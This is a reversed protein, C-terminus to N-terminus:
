MIIQIFNLLTYSKFKICYTFYKHLFPMEKIPYHNWIEDWISDYIISKVISEKKIKPLSSNFIQRIYSRVYGIFLRQARTKYDGPIELENCEKLVFKYLKKNQIFKDERIQGTISSSNIMYNYFYDPLVCVCDCHSLVCLNFHLDESQIERESVFHLNNKKIVDRDYLVVKASMQITREERVNPASAIMDCALSGIEEKGHFIEKNKKHPLIGCPNGKIDIRKLGTFVMQASNDIAANYMTEYMVDDVWDDSDCFTIYDGKAVELGSNCAFGLGENNEKHIVKIRDDRKGWQDCLQPSNDPSCDDVLIIEIDKLTQQVVSFVCRDLYKEVNYVPIIISVKPM